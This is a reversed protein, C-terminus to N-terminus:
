RLRNERFPLGVFINLFFFLCVRIEIKKEMENM